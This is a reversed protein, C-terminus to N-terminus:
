TRKNFALHTIFKALYTYYGHIIYSRDMITKDAFSWTEDVKIKALVEKEILALEKM